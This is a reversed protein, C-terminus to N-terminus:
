QLRSALRADDSLSREPLRRLRSVRLDPSAGCSWGSRGRAVPKSRSRRQERKSVGRQM